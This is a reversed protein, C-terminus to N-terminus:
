KGKKDAGLEELLLSVAKELQPDRQAVEDDPTEDVWIDPKIGMNELTKGKLTYIGYSPTRMTSGDVLRYSGTGICGGGTPVGVLKGLGLVRFGHPFIEADSFSFQNILLVLKGFFGNWPKTTFVSDRYRSKYYPRRELVDFLSQDIYGGGNYRVDLVVGKKLRYRMLERRFRYLSRMGMSPIHIYALRGGSKEEVLKRNREVWERYRLRWADILSIHKIRLKRRDKGDPSAAVEVEVFPNLLHNLVKWYNDPVRLPKGDVSLLYDGERITLWEKDAPGDKLIHGVRYLGSKIDKVLDFGLYRSQYTPKTEEPVYMGMHSASLEGFMRNIISGLAEKDAVYPLIANYKKRVANWDVGHMKADYFVHKMIRWCENLIQKREAARDIRVEVSFNVRRPTGGARPIRWLGKGMQYFVYRGDPSFRLREIGGVAVLERLGRGDKGAYYLVNRESKGRAEKVLVVIHGDKSVVMARLRGAVEFLKRIRKKMGEVDVIVEKKQKDKKQPKKGKEQGKEKDSQKPKGPRKEKQLKSAEPDDPDYTLKKLPLKYAAVKWNGDGKYYEESLFYIADKTCNLSWEDFPMDDAIRYEKPEKDDLRMLYIDTWWDRNPKTYVLWHGDALFRIHRPRGVPDKLLTRKKGTKVDYLNLTHDSEAVALKTADPSWVVESKLTDSDTLKTIKRTKLNIIYVEDRGSRDSVFALKGGKPSFVPKRDRAPGETLRVIDGKELPVLFLDGYVSVAVYKNDPSVSFDDVRSRLKKYIIPNRRWDSRVEVPLVDTKGTQLDLRWVKFGQEYVVYRRDSSISPYRVPEDTYETLKRVKGDKLSLTYLNFVGDRESAFVVWDGALLPSNDHYDNKTLRKFKKTKFNYLWIEANNSGRYRKRTYHPSRRNFVFIQGDQSFTGFAASYPLLPEPIGGDISVKFLRYRFITGRMTKFVVFRSDPTWTVVVDTGTRFTLQRPKGGDAAVVFVDWNGCRNSTFAVWRGDPSFRPMVDSAPHVTLRRAVGKGEWIWIDGMYSFVLRGNNYDPHRLLLTGDAYLFGTLLVAVLLVATRM